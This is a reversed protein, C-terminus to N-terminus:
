SKDAEQLEKSMRTFERELLASDGDINYFDLYQNISKRISVSPLMKRQGQVWALMM